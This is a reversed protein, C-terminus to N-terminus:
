KGDRMLSGFFEIHNKMKKEVSTTKQNHSVRLIFEHMMGFLPYFFEAAFLATSVDSNEPLYNGCIKEAIRLPKEIMYELIIRAATDDAYQEISLLRIINQYGPTHLIKKYEKFWEFWLTGFTHERTVSRIKDQKLLGADLTKEIHAYVAEVIEKKSRFHNYISAAKIGVEEAIDRLSIGAYGKRSLQLLATGIIKDRTAIM